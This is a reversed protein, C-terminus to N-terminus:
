DSLHKFNSFIDEIARSQQTALEDDFTIFMDMSNTFLHINIHSSISNVFSTDFAKTIQDPKNSTLYYKDNFKTTGQLDIDSKGFWSVLKDSKTEPRLLTKGLDMTSKAIGVIQYHYKRTPSQDLKRGVPYGFDLFCQAIYFHGKNLKLKFLNQFTFSCHRPLILANLTKQLVEQREAEELIIELRDKHRIANYSNVLLTTDDKDFTSLNLM